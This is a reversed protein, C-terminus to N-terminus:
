GRAAVREVTTTASVSVDLLSLFFEFFYFEFFGV